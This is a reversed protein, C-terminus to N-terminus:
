EKRLVHTPSPPHIQKTFSHRLLLSYAQLDFSPGSYILFGKQISIVSIQCFYTLFEGKNFWNLRIHYVKNHKLYFFFICLRIIKYIMTMHTHTNLIHNWNIWIMIYNNNICKFMYCNYHEEIWKILTRLHMLYFM